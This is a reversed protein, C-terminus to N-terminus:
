QRNQVCFYSPTTTGFTCTAAGSTPAAATANGGTGELDSCVCFGAATGWVSYVYSGTNKPDAPVGGPFYAAGVVTTITGAGTGPVVSVVPYAGGNTSAYQEIAKAITNMDAKRRADRGSKQANTYSVLGAAMLLGIIAIVVMLEILTFGLQRTIKKIEVPKFM